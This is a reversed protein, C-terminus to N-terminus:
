SSSVNFLASMGDQYHENVHCYLLWVGPNDPSMDVIQTTGPLLLVDTVRRSSSDLLTQGNWHPTHLDVESGLGLLYWRVTDGENMFLGPLNGYLYGNIAHKMNSETFVPDNATLNAPNPIYTNINESLYPSENEDFVTFLLFFERNVDSPLQTGDPNTALNGSNTVVIAGVLGANTDAILDTQSNYFWVVSSLDGSGPGARDTVQWVYTYNGGPPVSGGPEEQGYPSGESLKDYFVGDAHISFNFDAMNKFVIHLEDGVEAHIIPGLIGLHVQESAPPVPTSFSSNTYEVFRAKKYQAGITDASTTVFISEQSTYPELTILNESSPAYNWVQTVAAIYFVRVTTSPGNNDSGGMTLTIPLVVALVIIVVLIFGVILVVASIIWNIDVKM